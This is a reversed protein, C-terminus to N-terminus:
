RVMGLLVADMLVRQKAEDLRREINRADTQRRIRARM